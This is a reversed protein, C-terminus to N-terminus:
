LLELPHAAILIELQEFRQKLREKYGKLFEYADSAADAYITLVIIRDEFIRGAEEWLGRLATASDRQMATLGHFRAFLEIETDVFKAGEIDRGDNYTLPLYIEYRWARRKSSFLRKLRTQWKM